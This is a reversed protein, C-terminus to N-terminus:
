HAPVGTKTQQSAAKYLSAIRKFDKLIKLIRPGPITLYDGSLCFVMNAKVAPVMPLCQWDKAINSLTTYESHMTIDIIIDPQMRIIAEESIQPYALKTDAISNKMQTMNLIDNYFTSNGAAYARYIKGNGQRERDVCLLVHPPKTKETSGIVIEAKIERTLEKAREFEGCKKGIQLFSELIAPLEHNDILLYEIKNKKLFNLIPVHEQLLIVLDPHLRIIMEFNPNTYGGIKPIKKTELPFKCYDSVGVVRNGVSLAFLTETISPACSIIRSFSRPSQNEETKNKGCFILLLLLCLYFTKITSNM